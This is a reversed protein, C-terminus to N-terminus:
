RTVPRVMEFDDGNLVSFPTQSPQLVFGIRPTLQQIWKQWQQWKGEGDVVSPRGTQKIEVAVGDPNGYRELVSPHIYMVSQLKRGKAIHLYTVAGQLLVFPEKSSSDKGGTLLVYYNLELEDMWDKQIEYETTIQIWDRLRPTPTSERTDYQPTKIRKTKVSQIRVTDRQQAWGEPTALTCIFLAVPIM